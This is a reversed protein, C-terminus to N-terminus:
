CPMNAHVKSDLAYDELKISGGKRPMVPLNNAQLIQAVEEDTLVKVVKIEGALIWTGFMNPNTKYRYYGHTPVYKIYACKPVFKGNVFGNRDAEAQYSIQDSYECICWVTDPKMMEIRGSTGKVGIHTALPYDSLHWAPRYCLEGLRSKVKGNATQTGCKASVWTGIPTPEDADVYLPFICGKHSKSVRFLKYAYSM